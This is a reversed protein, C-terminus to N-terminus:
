EVEFLLGFWKITSVHSTPLRFFHTRNLFNEHKGKKEQKAEGKGLRKHDISTKHKQSSLFTKSFQKAKENEGVNERDCVRKEREREGEGKKEGFTCVCFQNFQLFTKM